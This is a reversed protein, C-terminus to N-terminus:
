ADELGYAQFRLYAMDSGYKKQMNYFRISDSAAKNYLGIHYFPHKVFRKLWDQAGEKDLKLYMIILKLRTM